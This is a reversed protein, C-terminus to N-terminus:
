KRRRRLLMTAGLASMLASTPEPVAQAVIWRGSQTSTLEPNYADIWIQQSANDFARYTRSAPIIFLDFDFSSSGSWDLARNSDTTLSLHCDGGFPLMLIEDQTATVNDMAYSPLGVGSSSGVVTGLGNTLSWSWAGINGGGIPGITGDTTISGSLTLGNQYAANNVLSYTITAAQINATIVCLVAAVATAALFKSTTQHGKCSGSRASFAPTTTNQQM